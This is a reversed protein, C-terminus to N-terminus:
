EWLLAVGTITKSPICFLLVIVMIVWVWITFSSNALAFMQLWTLKHPYGKHTTGLSAFNFHQCVRVHMCPPTFWRAYSRQERWVSWKFSFIFKVKAHEGCSLALHANTHTCTHKQTAGTRVCITKQLSFILKMCMIICVWVCLTNRGSVREWIREWACVVCTTTYGVRLYLCICM